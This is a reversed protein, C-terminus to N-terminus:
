NMEEDHDFEAVTTLYTGVYTTRDGDGVADGLQSPRGGSRVVSILRVDGVWCPFGSRTILRDATLAAHEAGIPDNQDWRLRLQFGPTDAVGDLSEGTGPVPYVIAIRDPMDPVAQAAEGVDIQEVNVLGGPRIGLGALWAVIRPGTWFGM